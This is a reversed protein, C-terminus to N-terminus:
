EEWEDPKVNMEIIMFGAGATDAVMAIKGLTIDLTMWVQGGLQKIKAVTEDVSKVTFYVVWSAPMGQMEPTLQMIGGNKRGNNFIVTYDGGFDTPKEYTWGLLQSFFKKSAEVDASYLENWSMAGITNVIGAGPHKGAQWLSVQAGGPDQITAMRGSDLVDMPPMTVKGGLQEVQSIVQDLNDVTIYSSWFSPMKPDFAQSGGATYHGDLSFMTYDPTSPGTPMDQSTWGFLQTYFKKSAAIDTSFFDAWSFTGHPYKTVTYPM